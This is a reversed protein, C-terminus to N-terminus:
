SLLRKIVELLKIVGEDCKDVFADYQSGKNRFSSFWVTKLRHNGQKLETVFSDAEDIDGWFSGTILIQDGDGLYEKADAPNDLLVFDTGQKYGSCKLMPEIESFPATQIIVIKPKPVLDKTKM